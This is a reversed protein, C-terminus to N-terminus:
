NYNNINPKLHKTATIFIYFLTKKLITSHPGYPAKTLYISRDIESTKTGWTNWCGM